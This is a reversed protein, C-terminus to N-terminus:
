SYWGTTDVGSHEFYDKVYQPWKNPGGGRDAIEVPHSMVPDAKYSSCCAGTDLEPNVECGACGSTTHEGQWHGCVCIGEQGAPPYQESPCAAHPM